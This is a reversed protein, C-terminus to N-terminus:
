VKGGREIIVSTITSENILIRDEKMEIVAKLMANSSDSATVVNEVRDITVKWTYMM